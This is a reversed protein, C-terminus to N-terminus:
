HLGAARPVLCHTAKKVGTVSCVRAVLGRSNLRCLPPRVQSTKLGLAKEIEPQTLAGKDMLLKYIQRCRGQPLGAYINKAWTRLTVGM